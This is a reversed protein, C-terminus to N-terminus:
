LQFPTVVIYQTTDGAAFFMIKGDHTGTLGAIENYIESLVTSFTLNPVKQSIRM